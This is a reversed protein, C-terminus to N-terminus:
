ARYSPNKGGCSPCQPENPNNINMNGRCNCDALPFLPKNTGVEFTYSPYKKEMKKKTNVFDKIPDKMKEEMFCVHFWVFSNGVIASLLWWAGVM